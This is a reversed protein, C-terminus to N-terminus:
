VPNGSADLIFVAAISCDIQSEGFIVHGPELNQVGWAVPIMGSLFTILQERRVSMGLHWEPHSSSARRAPLTM